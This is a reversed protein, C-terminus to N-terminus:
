TPSFGILALGSLYNLVVIGFWLAATLAIRHSLTTAPDRTLPIITLIWLVVLLWLLLVGWGLLWRAGEIVRRRIGLRQRATDGEARVDIEAAEAKLM